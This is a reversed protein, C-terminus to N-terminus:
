VIFLNNKEHNTTNAFFKEIILQSGNFIEVSHIYIHLTGTLYKILRLKLFYETEKNWKKRRQQIAGPCYDSIWIQYEIWNSYPM